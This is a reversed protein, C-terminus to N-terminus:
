DGHSAEQTLAEVAAHLYDYEAETLEGHDAAARVEQWTGAAEAGRDEVESWVEAPETPLAPTDRLVRSLAVGLAVLSRKDGTQHAAILSRISTAM